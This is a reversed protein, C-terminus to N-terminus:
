TLPSTGISTCEGSTQKPVSELKRVGILVEMAVFVAITTTRRIFCNPYEYVHQFFEFTKGYCEMMYGFVRRTVAVSTFLCGGGYICIYWSPHITYTSLFCKEMPNRDIISLM